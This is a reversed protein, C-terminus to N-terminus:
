VGVNLVKPYYNQFFCYSFANPSVTLAMVSFFENSLRYFSKIFPLRNLTMQLVSQFGGEALGKIYIMEFEIRFRPECCPIM